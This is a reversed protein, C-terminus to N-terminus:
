QEKQQSEQVYPLLDIERRDFKKIQEDFQKWFIWKGDTSLNGWNDFNSQNIPVEIKMVYMYKEHMLEANLIENFKKRLVLVQKLDENRYIPRNVMEVWVILPEMASSLSGPRTTKMNERRAMLLKKIERVLWHINSSLCFGSGFKAMNISTIMDKDPFMVIYRPLYVHENLGRVIESRLRGMTTREHMSRPNYYAQINYIDYVYPRRKHKLTAM